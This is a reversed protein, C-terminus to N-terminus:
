CAKQRQDKTLHSSFDKAWKKILNNLNGRKARQGSQSAHLNLPHVSNLKSDQSRRCWSASVRHRLGCLLLRYKQLVSSVRAEARLSGITRLAVPVALKHHPFQPLYCTYARFSPETVSM